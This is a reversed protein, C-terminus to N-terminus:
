TISETGTSVERLLESIICCVPEVPEDAVSRRLMFTFQFYNTSLYVYIKEGFQKPNLFFNNSECYLNIVMCFNNHDKLFYCSICYM